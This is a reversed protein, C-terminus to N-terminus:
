GYPLLAEEPSREPPFINLQKTLMKSQERHMKNTESYPNSGCSIATLTLITYALTKLISNM